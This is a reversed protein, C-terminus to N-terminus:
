EEGDYYDVDVPRFFKRPDRLGWKKSDPYHWYDVPPNDAVLYYLLDTSGTNTFDHAEGPPHIVVEGAGLVQSEADARVTATGSIFYFLEWQAAHRHVPCGRDGPALKGLELDFPHGGLGVPTNRLAGLAISLEKSTGRFKGKPSSWAEWPLDDPHVRRRAFPAVPPSAPSPSARYPPADHPLADEGEFYHVEQIRFFKGPPRLGWKDSDPYHCGDLPPNDAVILIELDDSGSNSLQHPTGPPHFFVEGTKVMFRGDPTRVTGTGRQVVFLEWQALHLHYPCIAAGPPIRRLQLDFPHGGGWPGTNAIGGLAQSINRSFSRFQGTPSRQEIEPLDSIQIRRM